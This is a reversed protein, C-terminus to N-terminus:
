RTNPLKKERGPIPARMINRLELFCGSAEDSTLAIKGAAIIAAETRTRVIFGRFKQIWKQKAELHRARDDIELISKIESCLFDMHVWLMLTQKLGKLQEKVARIEEVSAVAVMKQESPIWNSIYDPSYELQSICYDEYIKWFELIDRSNLAIYAKEDSDIVSKQWETVLQRQNLLKECLSECVLFDEIFDVNGALSAHNRLLDDFLLDKLQMYEEDPDLDGVDTDSVLNWDEDMNIKIRGDKIPILDCIRLELKQYTDFTTGFVFGRGSLALLLLTRFDKPYKSILEPEKEIIKTFFAVANHTPLELRVSLEQFQSLFEMTAAEINAIDRRAPVARFYLGGQISMEIPEFILGSGAQAKLADTLKRNMKAM